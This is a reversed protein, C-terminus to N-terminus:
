PVNKDRVVQFSVPVSGDLVWQTAQKAVLASRVPQRKTRRRSGFVAVASGPLDSLRVGELAVGKEPTRVHFYLNTRRDGLQVRLMRFLQDINRPDLLYAEDRFQRRLKASYGCVMGSYRGPPLDEPLKLRVEVKQPSGKHPRLNATAVVTEGPEFREAALTAAQIKASLRRPIVRLHAEVSKVPVVEFSNRVLANVVTAMTGFLAGMGRSGAFAPGSFRDRVVLPEHGQVNIRGDFEITVEEPVAGQGETAAALVIAVLTGMLAPERVVQVHYTKEPAEAGRAVHVTVPLMEPGKGLRGSICTSVDADVTGITEVGSGLKMSLSQRPYVTHVYCSLMPYRAAGSQLFPHGWGYVRDGEVHTVTGIGTLAFDGTALAVGVSAGPVLPQSAIKQAVQESVGGGAVPVMGLPQFAEELMAFSRPGFGTASVPLTLPSLHMSGAAVRQGKVDTLPRFLARTLDFAEGETDFTYRTALSSPLPSVMGQMQVFPTIGAIPEKGYSWAFAVAGLLKGEIYIPSGSMGAIVGTYELNAGSLRALVMDRGPAVNKMVGIIEVEFTSLETGKLVTKGIGKMGPQIDDVAWCDVQPEAASSFTAGMVLLALAVAVGAKSRPALRLPWQAPCLTRFGTHHM